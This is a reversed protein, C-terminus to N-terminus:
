AGYKSTVSGNKVLKEALRKDLKVLDAETMNDTELFQAVENRIVKDWQSEEVELDGAYKGRFKNVLLTQLQERRKAAKVDRPASNFGNSGGGFQSGSVSAQSGNTQQKKPYSM